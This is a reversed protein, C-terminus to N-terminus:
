RSKAAIIYNYINRTDVSDLNKFTHAIALHSFDAYSGIETQYKDGNKILSDQKTIFLHFYTREMKSDLRVLLDPDSIGGSRHCAACNINFLRRGESYDALPDDVIDVVTVKKIEKESNLLYFLLGAIVIVFTLFSLSLYM